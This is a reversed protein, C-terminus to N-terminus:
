SLADALARFDDVVLHPQYPTEEYPRRRRNVFCSKMGTARAGICDFPHNAVHM